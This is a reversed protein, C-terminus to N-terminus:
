QADGDVSPQGGGGLKGGMLREIRKKVDILEQRNASSSSLQSTKSELLDQAVKEQLQRGVESNEFGAEKM